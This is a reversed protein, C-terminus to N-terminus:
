DYQKARRVLYAALGFIFFLLGLLTIKINTESFELLASLLFGAVVFIIGLYLLISAIGARKKHM